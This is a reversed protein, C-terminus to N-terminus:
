PRRAPAQARTPVRGRRVGSPRTRRFEDAARYRPQRSQSLMLYQGVGDDSLLRRAAFGTTGGAGLPSLGPAGCVTCRRDAGSAGRASGTFSYERAAGCLLEAATVAVIGAFRVMLTDEARSSRRGGALERECLLLRLSLVSRWLAERSLVGVDVRGERLAQM